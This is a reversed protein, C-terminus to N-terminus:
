KFFVVVLNNCKSENLKGHGIVFCNLKDLNIEISKLMETTPLCIKQIIPNTKVMRTLQLLAIDNDLTTPSFQLVFM